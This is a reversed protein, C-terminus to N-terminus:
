ANYSGAMLLSSNVRLPYPTLPSAITSCLSTLSPHAIGKRRVGSAQRAHFDPVTQWFFLIEAERGPGPNL